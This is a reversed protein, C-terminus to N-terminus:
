PDGPVVLTWNRKPAKGVPIRRVERRETVDVVSVDNTNANAVYAFRSDPSFTVWDPHSGVKVAGLYALDPLAYAYVRGNLRSCVWLTRGDPAVGIGHAPAGNFPPKDQQEPPVQPLDIRAVERHAAFDVVTFGHYESLQVFMRRVSGDAGKEFAIPRIGELEDDNRPPYLAWALQETKADIVALNNEGGFMGAVVYNGDPTVYTNHVRAGTAIHRVRALAETDVVDIGGDGEMIGVYVLRGDKAISINNPRGSLPIQAVSALTRADFVDLTQTAESSFYLRSGDPSSVVGHNVPVGSITAVVTQEVPDILHITEDRSNTQVIRVTEALASSAVLAAALVLFRLKSANTM